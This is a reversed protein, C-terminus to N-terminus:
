EKTWNKLSEEIAEYANRMKYINQIKSNDLVCNSRPAVVKVTEYFKEADEMFKVEKDFPLHKRILEVTDRANISESNVVNYIGYDASSAWTELCAKVFDQRHSVSNELNLLINYNQLKTLYNRPSDFEDFPIRLRWIYCDFGSSTLLKEAEAKTGSYYSCPPSEFSFNPQDEETFVKEYGNYICGSSVHGWPIGLEECIQALTFPITTNGIKTDEKHTECSDVDPKGTYGACNIIFSPKMEQLVFKISDYHLVNLMSSSPAFYSIGRSSLEKQFAQGVYGNGGFMVVKIEGEGLNKIESM